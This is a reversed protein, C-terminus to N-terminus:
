GRKPVPAANFYLVAGEPAPPCKMAKYHGSQGQSPSQFFFLFFCFAKKYRSKVVALGQDEEWWWLWWCLSWLESVCCATHHTIFVSPGCNSNERWPHSGHCGLYPFLGKQLASSVWLWIPSLVLYLCFSDLPKTILLQGYLRCVACRALSDPCTVLQAPM